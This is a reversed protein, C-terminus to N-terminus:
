LIQVLLSHNKEIIKEIKRLYACFDEASSVTLLYLCNEDYNVFSTFFSLKFDTILEKFIDICAKGQELRRDYLSFRLKYEILSLKDINFIQNIYLRNRQSFDKFFIFFQNDNRMKEYYFYESKDVFKILDYFKEKYFNYLSCKQVLERYSNNYVATINIKFKSCLRETKPKNKAIVDLRGNLNIATKLREPFMLYTIDSAYGSDIFHMIHMKDKQIKDSYVSFFEKGFDEFDLDFFSILYSLVIEETLHANPFKAKFLILVRDLVDYFSDVKIKQLITRNFLIAAGDCSKKPIIKVKKNYIEISELKQSNSQLYFDYIWDFNRGAFDFCLNKDEVMYINIDRLLYTDTDLCLIRNFVSLLKVFYLKAGCAIGWRNGQISRGYFELWTNSNTLKNIDIPYVFDFLDNILNLEEESLDQYLYVVEYHQTDIVEKINQLLFIVETLVNEDSTIGIAYAKNLASLDNLINIEYDSFTM